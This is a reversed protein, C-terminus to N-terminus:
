FVCLLSFWLPGSEQLFYLRYTNKLSFPVLQSAFQSYINLLVLFTIFSISTFPCFPLPVEGGLTLSFFQEVSRAM